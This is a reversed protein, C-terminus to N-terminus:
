VTLTQYLCFVETGIIGVFENFAIARLFLAAISCSEKLDRINSSRENRICVPVNQQHGATILRM